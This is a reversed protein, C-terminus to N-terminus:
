KKSKAKPTKPKVPEKGVVEGTILEYTKVIDTTIKGTFNKKFFEFGERKIASTKYTTSGGLVKVWGNGLDEIYKEKKAM